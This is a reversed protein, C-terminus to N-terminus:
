NSVVLSRVLWAKKLAYEEPDDYRSERDLYLWVALAVYASFGMTMTFLYGTSAQCHMRDEMGFFTSSGLIYVSFCLISVILAHLTGIFGWTLISNFSSKTRGGRGGIGTWWMWESSSPSLTLPSFVSSMSLFSSSSAMSENSSLRRRRSRRAIVGSSTRQVAAADEEEEEEEHDDEISLSSFLSLGNISLSQFIPHLMDSMAVRVPCSQRATAAGAQSESSSSSSSFASSTLIFFCQIVIALGFLCALTHGLWAYLSFTM